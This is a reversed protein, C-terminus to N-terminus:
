KKRRKKQKMGIMVIHLDHALGTIEEIDRDDKEKLKEKKKAMKAERL